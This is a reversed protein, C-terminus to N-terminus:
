SVFSPSVDKIESRVHGCLRCIIGFQENLRYDHLCKREHNTPKALEDTLGYTEEMLYTTVLALEMEKWLMELEKEETMEEEEDDEEEEKVNMEKKERQDLSKGLQFQNWQDIVALQEIKIYPDINRRCRSM